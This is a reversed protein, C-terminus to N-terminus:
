DTTPQFQQPLTMLLAVTLGLAGIGLLFMWFRHDRWRAHVRGRLYWRWEAFDEGIRAAFGSRAALRVVVFSVAVDALSGALM